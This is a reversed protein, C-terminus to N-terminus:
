WRTSAIIGYSDIGMMPSVTFRRRRKNTDMVSDVSEWALYWGLVVQSSFHRDDYLRSIGTAASLLYAPYQIWANKPNMAAITLFPTAGVFAHGSVGNSDNFPRWISGEPTENPRSAGTILQTGWLAPFGVIYARSTNAGWNGIATNTSFTNLSAALLATPVMLKYEGFTKAFLSDDTAPNPKPELNTNMRWNRLSMDINSNAAIAGLGFAIGLRVMRDKSYFSRYDNAITRSLMNSNSTPEYDAAYSTSHQLFGTLLLLHLTLKMLIYSNQNIIMCTKWLLQLLWKTPNYSSQKSLLRYLALSNFPIVTHTLIRLSKESQESLTIM